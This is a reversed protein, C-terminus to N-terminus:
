QKGRRNHRQQLPTAWRCNSPEYNGYPDPYRDLSHQSSPKRGMDALFNDFAELWRDCVKIGSGGYLRWSAHKPNSCRSRMQAWAEYEVTKGGEGHKLNAIGREIGKEVRICGCSRTPGTKHLLRNSSLTIEGGCNCLCNWYTRGKISGDYNIVTLRGFTKGSLEVRRM